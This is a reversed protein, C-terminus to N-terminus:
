CLPYKIKMHLRQECLGLHIAISLVPLPVLQREGSLNWHNQFVSVPVGLGRKQRGWKIVLSGASRITAGPEGWRRSGWRHHQGPCNNEGQGTSHHHRSESFSIEAEWLTKDSTDTWESRSWLPDTLSVLSALFFVLHRAHLPTRTLNGKRASTGFLGRVGPVARDRLHPRLRFTFLCEWRTRYSYALLGTTVHNDM